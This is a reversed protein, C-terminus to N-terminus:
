VEKVVVAVTANRHHPDQQFEKKNVKADHDFAILIGNYPTNIRAKIMFRRGM